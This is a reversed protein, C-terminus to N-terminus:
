QLMSFGRDVKSKCDVNFGQWDIGITFAAQKTPFCKQM